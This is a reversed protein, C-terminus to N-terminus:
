RLSENPYVGWLRQKPIHGRFQGISVYCWRINCSKVSVLTGPELKALVRSQTRAQRFLNSLWDGTKQRAEKHKWPTVLATRRRSILGRSVWGTAGDSDRVQRWRGHERLVEVPLGARRFIWSKPFQLGPGKRLNVPNSKLSVFRPFDSKKGGSAAHSASGFLLAVAFGMAWMSCLQVIQRTRSVLQAMERSNRGRMLLNGNM